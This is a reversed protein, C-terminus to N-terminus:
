RAIGGPFVTEARLVGQRMRYVAYLRQDDALAFPADEAIEGDPAEIPRGDAIEQATAPLAPMGLLTVPDIFRDPLTGSAGLAEIEGLTLARDVALSGIATRRLASLHAVTGAALGIDRALSRVYTGKSVHVGVDWTSRAADVARATAEYVVIEREALTREEGARARRHSPMGDVKIASFLPPAQLQPGLFGELLAQAGPLDFLAAPVDATATVQGDADLTDTATGFRIRADYRKDHGSLYRELRTAPGVLVLLLGTAMPDLTGAHGVRREGTARRVAAVVDHSTMGGPKDVALVGALDTAGRRTAM